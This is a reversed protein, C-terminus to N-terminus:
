EQPLKYSEKYLEYQAEFGADSKKLEHLYEHADMENKDIEILAVAINSCHDSVREYNTLLDSLIIGSEVSCEGSKLREVHRSKMTATLTDIVQELPEVQRALALDGTKFAKVTLELIDRIAADLVRFEETAKVSFSLNKDHMGQAAFAINMAHDGIREFDSVTNLLKSIERGDRDSIDKGSLRVLYTSLKDEYQDLSEEKQVVDDFNEGKFSFILGISELFTKKALSAMRCTQNNCEAVAFSPTQLLREDILTYEEAEGDHRDRVLFNALKELQKPFPLLILTNLINFVSHCLAVGFPNINERMFPMDIFLQPVYLLVMFVLMGIIKISVHVVAVRKAKKNVGFSSLLATACTGINLGLVLPIAMSYSIKGAMSLAQLIGISAASSQIIGTFVTGIVVGLVPNDFLTLIRSFQESESLPKVADSMLEMGFMLVAFGVFITGIDKRRKKKSMMIMVIGVFALIGSFNSPKIIEIFFNDADGIASLSTIWATVTTGINSGFIVSITQGLEMIGSNVLGVLMVTMASSSQIAITIGAGLLIGTFSNSTMKKLMQELKGGALKKLGGSMVDMGYLFFALGCLLRIIAFVVDNM